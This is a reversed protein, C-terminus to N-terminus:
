CIRSTTSQTWRLLERPNSSAGLVSPVVSYAALLSTLPLVSERMVAHKLDRPTSGFDIKGTVM